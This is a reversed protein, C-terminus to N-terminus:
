RILEGDSAGPQSCGAARCANGERHMRQLAHMTSPACTCTREQASAHPAASLWGAQVALGSLVRRRHPSSLGGYAV